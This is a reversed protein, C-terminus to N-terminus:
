VLEDKTIPPTDLACGGRKRTQGPSDSLEVIASRYNTDPGSCTSDSRILGSGFLLSSLNWSNHMVDSPLPQLLKRERVKRYRLTLFTSLM